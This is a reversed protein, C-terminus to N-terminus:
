QSLPPPPRPPTPAPSSPLCTRRLVFWHLFSEGLFIIVQGTTRGRPAYNRRFFLRHSARESRRLTPRSPPPLATTPLEQELRTRCDAFFGGPGEFPCSSPDVGTPAASVTAVHRRCRRWPLPDNRGPAHRYRGTRQRGPPRHRRRHPSLIPARAPPTHLSGGRRSRRRRM